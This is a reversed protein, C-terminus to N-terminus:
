SQPQATKTDTPHYLKGKNGCGLSSTVMALLALMWLVQAGKFKYLFRVM